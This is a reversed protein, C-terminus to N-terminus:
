SATKASKLKGRIAVTLGAAVVMLAVGLLPRCAIWAVAITILSLVAASLFSRAIIVPHLGRLKDHRCGTTNAKGTTHVLKGSNTPDATDFTVSIVADGEEKPNTNGRDTRKM